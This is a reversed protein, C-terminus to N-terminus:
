APTADNMHKLVKNKFDNFHEHYRIMDGNRRSFEVCYLNDQVKLIRVCMEVEQPDGNENKTSMTFRIKYGDKSVKNPEVRESRLNELLAEEIM